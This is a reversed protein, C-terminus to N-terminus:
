ESPECPVVVMLGRARAETVLLEAMEMSRVVVEYPTALRIRARGATDEGDSIALAFWRTAMEAAIHAELGFQEITTARPRAGEYAPPEIHVPIPQYDM